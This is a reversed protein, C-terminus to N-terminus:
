THAHDIGKQTGPMALEVQRCRAIRRQAVKDMDAPEIDALLGGGGADPQLEAVAVIEDQRAVIGSLERTEAGPPRVQVLQQAMGDRLFKVAEIERDAVLRVLAVPRVALELQMIM